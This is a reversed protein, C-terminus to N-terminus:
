LGCRLDYLESAIENLSVNEALLNILREIVYYRNSNVGELDGIKRELEHIQNELKRNENQVNYLEWKDAKDRLKGEIEYSNM